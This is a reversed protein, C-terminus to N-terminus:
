NEHMVKCKALKLCDGGKMKAIKMKEMKQLTTNTYYIAGPEWQRQTSTAMEGLTQFLVSMFELLHNWLDEVVGTVTNGEMCGTLAAKGM